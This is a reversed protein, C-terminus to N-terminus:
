KQSSAINRARQWSEEGYLFLKAVMRAARESPTFAKNKAPEDGYIKIDDPSLEGSQLRSLLKRYEAAIMMNRRNVYVDPFKPRGKPKEVDGVLHACVYDLIAQPVEVEDRTQILHVLEEASIYEGNAIKKKASEFHLAKIHRFPNSEETM